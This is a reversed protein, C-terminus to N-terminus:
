WREAGQSHTFYKMHAKRIRRGGSEAAEVWNHVCPLKCQMTSLSVLTSFSEEQNSMECKKVCFASIRFKKQQKLPTHVNKLVLGARLVILCVYIVKNSSAKSIQWGAIMKAVDCRAFHAGLDFTILSAAVNDSKSASDWGTSSLGTLKFPATANNQMNTVLPRRIICFYLIISTYYINILSFSATYM